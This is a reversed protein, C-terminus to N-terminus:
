AKKGSDDSIDFTLSDNIDLVAHGAHKSDDCELECVSLKMNYTGPCGDDCGFTGSDATFEFDFETVGAPLGANYKPLIVDMGNGINPPCILRLEVAGAATPKTINVVLKVKVLGTATESSNAALIQASGPPLIPCFGIKECNYVADPQLHNGIDTMILFAAIDCLQWSWGYKENLYPCIKDMWTGMWGSEAATHIATGM